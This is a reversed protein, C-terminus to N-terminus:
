LSTNQVFPPVSIDQYSTSKGASTYVVENPWTVKNLVLTAGTGHLDSKLYKRWRPAPQEEEDSTDGKTTASTYATLQRMREAM